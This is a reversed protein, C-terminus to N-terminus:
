GEFLTKSNGRLDFDKLGAAANLRAPPMPERTAAWDEPTAEPLQEEPEDTATPIGALLRPMVQAQMGAQTRLAEARLWYVHNDPELAAAESYLLYARAYQGAKQAKRGQNYLKSAESAWAGTALCLAAMLAFVRMIPQRERRRRRAVPIRPWGPIISASM